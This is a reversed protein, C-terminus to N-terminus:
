YITRMSGIIEGVVKVRESNLELSEYLENEFELRVLDNKVKYYRAVVVKKYDIFVIAIKKNNISRKYDILIYDDKLIGAGIMSDDSMRIIFNSNGRLLFAPLKIVETVYEKAIPNSLKIKDLIPVELIEQNMGEVFEIDEHLIEITRPKDEDRKIYKAEELKKLHNYVTSISNLGVSEAIERITPAYKKIKIYEVIYKYIEEQRKSLTGM